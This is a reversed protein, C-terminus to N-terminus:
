WGFESYAIKKQMMAIVHKHSAMITTPLQDIAFWAVGDCKHPEMVTPEGQWQTAQFFFNIYEENKDTKVHLVHALHLNEQTLTIGLEEQAERITSQTITEAGDVSGGAFAYVGGSVSASSRKLLCISQGKRLIIASFIPMKFLDKKM